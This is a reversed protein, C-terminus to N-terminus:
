ISKFFNIIFITFSHICSDLESYSHIKKYREKKMERRNMQVFEGNRSQIDGTDRNKKKLDFLFKNSFVCTKTKQVRSISLSTCQGGRHYFIWKDVLPCVFYKWIYHNTIFSSRQKQLTTQHRNFFLHRFFIGSVVSIFSFCAELFKLFSVKKQIFIWDTRFAASRLNGKRM